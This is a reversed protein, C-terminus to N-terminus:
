SGYERPISLEIGHASLIRVLLDMQDKGFFWLDNDRPLKGGQEFQAEVSCLGTPNIPEEADLTEARFELFKVAINEYTATRVKKLPHFFIGKRLLFVAKDSCFVLLTPLRGAVVNDNLGNYRFLFIGEIEGAGSLEQAIRDPIYKSTYMDLVKRYGMTKKLQFKGILGM